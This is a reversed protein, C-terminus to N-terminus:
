LGGTKQILQKRIKRLEDIKQSDDSVQKYAIDREEESRPPPALPTQISTDRPHSAGFGQSSLDREQQREVMGLWTNFARDFSKELNKLRSDVLTVATDIGKDQLDLKRIEIDKQWDGTSGRKPNMKDLVGDWWMMRDMMQEPTQTAQAQKEQLLAIERRLADSRESDLAQRMQLERDYQLDREKIRLTEQVNTQERNMKITELLVAIGANQEDKGSKLADIITILDKTSDSKEERTMKDLMLLQSLQGMPNDTKNDPSKMKEMQKKYLEMKTVQLDRRILNDFEEDIKPERSIPKIAGRLDSGKGYLAEMVDQGYIRFIIGQQKKIPVSEIDLLKVLDNPQQRSLEFSQAIRNASSKRIYEGLIKNLPASEGGALSKEEEEDQSETICKAIWGDSPSKKGKFVNPFEDQLQQRTDSYSNGSETLEVARERAEQPYKTPPKKSSM